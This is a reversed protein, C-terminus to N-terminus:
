GPLGGRCGVGAVWGPLGGRCGVGAVRGHSIGGGEGWVFAGQKAERWEVSFFAGELKAM